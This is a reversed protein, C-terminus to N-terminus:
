AVKLQQQRKRAAVCIYRVDNGGLIQALWTMESPRRDGVFLAYIYLEKQAQYLLNRAKRVPEPGQKASKKAINVLSTNVKRAVESTFERRNRALHRNIVVMTGESVTYEQGDWPIVIEVASM